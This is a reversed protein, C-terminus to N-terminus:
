DIRSQKISRDLSAFNPLHSEVVKWFKKSHNKVVTHCLEHVLLYDLQEPTLKSVSSNITIVNKYSCNGWQRKMKRFKLGTYNLGTKKSWYELKTPVIELTKSKYFKELLLHIGLQTEVTPNLYFHLEKDIIKLRIAQKGTTTHIKVSFQEDHCNILSENNILKPLQKQIDDLKKLIWNAKKMMIAEAAKDSLGPSKLVVNRHKDIKIYVNKIRKDTQHDYHIIENNIIVKQM